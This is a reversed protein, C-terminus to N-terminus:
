TVIGIQQELFGVTCHIFGFTQAATRAARINLSRFVCCGVNRIKRGILRLGVTELGVLKLSFRTQKEM